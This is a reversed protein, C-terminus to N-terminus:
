ELGVSELQKLLEANQGKGGWSLPIATNLKCGLDTTHPQPGAEWPQTLTSSVECTERRGPIEAKCKRFIAAEYIQDLAEWGENYQYSELLSATCIDVM